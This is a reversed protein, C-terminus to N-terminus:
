AKYGAMGTIFGYVGGASMFLLMTQGYGLQFFASTVLCGLSLGLLTLIVAAHRM